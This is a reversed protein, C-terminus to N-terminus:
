QLRRVRRRGRPEEPLPARAIATKPGPEGTGQAARAIAKVLDGFRNRVGEDKIAYYYRILELTEAREMRERAEREAPTAAPHLDDFFFLIPMRLIDAVASLRSASLRNVGDEYKQVQQFSLGLGDALTQQSMGILSRRIRIRRGVHVDIPHSVGTGRGHAPRAKSAKM